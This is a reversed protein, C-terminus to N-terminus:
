EITQIAEIFKEDASYVEERHTVEVL